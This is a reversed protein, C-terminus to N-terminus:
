DAALYIHYNRCPKAVVEANVTVLRGRGDRVGLMSAPYHKRFPVADALRATSAWCGHSSRVWNRTRM